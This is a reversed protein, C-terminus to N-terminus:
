LPLSFDVSHLASKSDLDVAVGYHMQLKPGMFSLGAGLRMDEVLEDYGLSLRLAGYANMRSEFAAVIYSTEEELNYNIDAFIKFFDRLKYSLGAQLSKEKGLEEIKIQDGTDFLNQGSLGLNLYNTAQYILGVGGSWSFEARNLGGREDADFANLYLGLSLKKMVVKSFNLGYSKFRLPFAGTTKSSLYSLSAAVPFGKMDQLESRKEYVDASNFAGNLSDAVWGHFSTEHDGEGRYGDNYGGGYALTGNLSLSAPNLFAGDMIYDSVSGAGIFSRARATELFVAESIIPFTLLFVLYLLLYSKKTKLINM